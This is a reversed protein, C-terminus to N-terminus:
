YVKWSRFSTLTWVALTYVAWAFYSTSNRWSASPRVRVISSAWSLFTLTPIPPPTLTNLLPSILYASTSEEKIQTPLFQLHQNLGFISVFLQLLEAPLCCRQLLFTHRKPVIDKKLDEEKDTGELPTLSVWSIERTYFVYWGTIPFNNNIKFPHISFQQSTM